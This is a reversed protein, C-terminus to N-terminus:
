KASRAATELRFKIGQKELSRQLLKAMGRDMAPVITDLFEVVTVESGLRRWVSGLELGVAGAGIVLLREPVRPLSLAETSCVIKEGDFPLTPLPTPESGTAILVRATEITQEGDATRVVVRDPAAIRAVGTVPEVKYKKFLSRVGQTLGRVVKDKRAMMAPLDLTVGGVKVGHEAFTHTAQWFHESSDLMAKSPICGINLCTGGLTAMKEVCGIKLGLQGARIAAIYGGPGAGIVVLDVRDM